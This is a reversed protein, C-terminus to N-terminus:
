PRSPTPPPWSGPPPRCGPAPPEGTTAPGTKDSTTCGRQGPWRSWSGPAPWSGSPRTPTSASTGVRHHQPHDAEGLDPQSRWGAWTTCCRREGCTPSPRPTSASRWQPESRCPPWRAPTAWCSRRRPRGHRCPGPGPRGPGGSRHRSRRRSPKWCRRGSTGPRDRQSHECRVPRLGRSGGPRVLRGGPPPGGGRGGRPRGAPRLHRGPLGRCAPRPPLHGRHRPGPPARATGWELSTCATASVPGLGLREALRAGVECVATLIAQDGEKGLRLARVLYRVREIGTGRGMQLLLAVAEPNGFDARGAAPRVALEDGGLHAEEHATATCWTACCRRVRRLGRNRTGMRRALATAVLCARIAKEPEQGMGLDTAVSVAALLDALRVRESLM